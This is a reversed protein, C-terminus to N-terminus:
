PIAQFVNMKSEVNDLGYIEPGNRNKGFVSKEASLALYSTVLFAGGIILLAFNKFHAASRPDAAGKYFGHLGIYTTLAGVFVTVKKYLEPMAGLQDLLTRNVDYFANASQAQAPM